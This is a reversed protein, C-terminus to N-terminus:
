INSPLTCSVDGTLAIIQKKVQSKAIIRRTGYGTPYLSMYNFQVKAGTPSVISDLYWSTVVEEATGDLTNQDAMYEDTDSGSRSISKEVTGFYFKAGSEDTVVWRYNLATTSFSTEIQIGEQSVLTAKIPQSPNSRKNLFFKASRGNFNLVFADPEGDAMGNLVEGLFERDYQRQTLDTPEIYTNSAPELSTPIYSDPYGADGLDDGGRVTRTIVGGAMLSWGLGVWSAEEDVRIGGSHYNLTLPVSVDRNKVTYLPISINPIGTYYSVPIDGYKAISAATPSPPIIRQVSYNIPEQAHLETAFLVVFLLISIRPM